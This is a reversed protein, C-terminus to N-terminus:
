CHRTEFATTQTLKVEQQQLPLLARVQSHRSPSLDMGQETIPALAHRTPLLLDAEAGFQSISTCATGSSLSTHSGRLETEHSNAKGM